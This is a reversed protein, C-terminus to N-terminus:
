FPICILYVIILVFYIHRCASTIKCQILNLAPCNIRLRLILRDFCFDCSSFNDFSSNEIVSFCYVTSYNGRCRVVFHFNNYQSTYKFVIFFFFVFVSLLLITHLLKVLLSYMACCATYMTKM